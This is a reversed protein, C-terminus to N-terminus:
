PSHGRVFTTQKVFSMSAPVAGCAASNQDSSVPLHSKVYSTRFPMSCCLMPAAIARQEASINMKEKQEFRDIERTGPIKKPYISPNTQIFDTQNKNTKNPNVKSVELRRNKRGRSTPNESKRVDPFDVKSIPATPDQGRESSKETNERTTIRKVFIKDPKGQGQKEREILGYGERYGTGCAAANSQKPWM